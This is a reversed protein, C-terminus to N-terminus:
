KEPPSFFFFIRYIEFIKEGSINLIKFLTCWFIKPRLINLTQFFRMYLFFNEWLTNALKKARKKGFFFFFKKKRPGLIRLSGAFFRGLSWLIVVECAKRKELQFCFIERTKLIVFKQLVKVLSRVAM